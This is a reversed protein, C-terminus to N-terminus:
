CRHSRFKRSRNTSFQNASREFQRKSSISELVRPCGVRISTCNRSATITAISFHSSTIPWISRSGFSEAHRCHRFDVAAYMPKDPDTAIVFINGPHMDAHFSTTAFCRRSSFRSAMKLSCRFIPVRRACHPWIASRYETSASRFWCRPDATIGTSMPCTSCTRAALLQTEASRCNAAERMLDLEDIITQEYEAVVVELPRLRKGHEWYRDALGAIMRMCM